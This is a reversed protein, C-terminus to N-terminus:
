NNWVHMPRASLWSIAILCLQSPLAAVGRRYKTTSCLLGQHGNLNNVFLFSALVDEAKVAAM